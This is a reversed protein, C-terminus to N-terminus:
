KPDRVPQRRETVLVTALSRQEETGAYLRFQYEVGPQIWPATMSREPGEGFLQEPGGDQSVYVRGPEDSGTSWTIQTAGTLDGVPVPNPDALLTAGTEEPTRESAGACALGVVLLFQAALVVFPLRSRVVM